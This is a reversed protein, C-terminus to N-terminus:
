KKVEQKAKLFLYCSIITLFCIFTSIQAFTLLAQFYIQTTIFFCVLIYSILFILYVIVLKIILLSKLKKM